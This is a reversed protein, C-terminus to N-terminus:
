SLLAFFASLGNKRQHFEVRMCMQVCSLPSRLALGAEADIGVAHDLVVRM